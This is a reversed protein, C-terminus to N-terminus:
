ITEAVLTHSISHSPKSTYVREWPSTGMPFLRNCGRKHDAFCGTQSQFRPEQPTDCHVSKFSKITSLTPINDRSQLSHDVGPHFLFMRTNAVHALAHPSLM